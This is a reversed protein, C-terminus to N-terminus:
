YVGHVIHNAGPQTDMLELSAICVLGSGSEADPSIRMCGEDM